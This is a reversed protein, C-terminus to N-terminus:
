VIGRHAGYRVPHMPELNEIALQTLVAVAEFAPKHKPLDHRWVQKLCQFQKMRKNVHEQRSRVEKKLAKVQVTDRENPTCCTM